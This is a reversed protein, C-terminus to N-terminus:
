SAPEEPAPDGPAGDREVQAVRCFDDFSADLTLARTSELVDRCWGEYRSPEEAVLRHARALADGLAQPDPACTWNGGARAADRLGDVDYVVAPTGMSNAETVILGWGEKVSTSCLVHARRMLSLKTEESTRGFFTVDKSVGAKAAYAELASRDGGGSVWLQCDPASRRLRVFAEVVAMPRKMPRLSSHFLVTFRREKASPDFRELPANDIGLRVIAVREPSFGYRVLDDKSDKSITITDARLRSQLWTYLPELGFGVVNLPFIMQYFWIERALQPYFLAFREKGRFFGLGYPITNIEEILLDSRDRLHKRYYRVSAVYHGLRTTGCRVIRIGDISDTASSGRYRATVLTVEHRSALRKMWDHTVVEAGGAEPHRIDKWSFFCIKM